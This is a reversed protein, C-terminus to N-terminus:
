RRGIAVLAGARGRVVAERDLADREVVARRGELADREREVAVRRGGARLGADREARREVAGPRVTRSNRAM